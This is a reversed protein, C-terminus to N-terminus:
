PAPATPTILQEPPAEYGGTGRVLGASLAFGELYVLMTDGPCDTFDNFERHGALHTLSLRLALWDILRRGQEIQVAPPTEVDFDGFFVVGVSGTNFHEVHTGRVQLDRGEFVQGTKGVGFHYGVDAWGRMDMHQDQIERMTAPDDTEYIVSHHVVVTRYIDRLDGEYERWGEPNSLDYFGSENAAAHDPERAGWEARTTITPRDIQKLRAPRAAPTPTVASSSSPDLQDLALYGVVGGICTISGAVAAMGALGLFDRRTLKSTSM